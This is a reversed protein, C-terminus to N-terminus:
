SGARSFCRRLARRVPVGLFSTPNVPEVSPMIRRLGDTRRQASCYPPRAAHASHAHCQDLWDLATRRRRATCPVPGSHAHCQGLLAHCQALMAHCQAVTPLAKIDDYDGDDDSYQKEHDIIHGM